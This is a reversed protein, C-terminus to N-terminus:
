RARPCAPANTIRRYGAGDYGIVYVDSDYWSCDQEHQSSFALEPGDPRWALEL